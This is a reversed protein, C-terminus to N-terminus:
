SIQERLNFQNTENREGERERKWNEDRDRLLVAKSKPSLIDMLMEFRTSYREFQQHHQEIKEKLSGKTSTDKHSM